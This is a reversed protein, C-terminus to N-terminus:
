VTQSNLSHKEVDRWPIPVAATHSLRYKNQTDSFAQLDESNTKLQHSRVSTQILEDDDRAEGAGAFRISAQLEDLVEFVSYRASCIRFYRFQLNMVDFVLCKSNRSIDIM